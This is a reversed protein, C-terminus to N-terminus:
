SSLLDTLTFPKSIYDKAGRRIAEVATDITAYATVIIVFLNPDEALLKPVLDLGSTDALRLDLFALDYPQQTLAVLASEASPAATVNCGMQELCLSLTTRINKEDDVVLAKLKEHNSDAPPSFAM